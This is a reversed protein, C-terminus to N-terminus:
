ILLIILFFTAGGVFSIGAIDLNQSFRKFFGQKEVYEIKLIDDEVKCSHVKLRIIYTSHLDFRQTHVIFYNERVVCDTVITDSDLIDALREADKLVRNYAAKKNAYLGSTMGLVILIM